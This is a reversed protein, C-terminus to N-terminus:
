RHWRLLFSSPFVSLLHIPFTESLSQMTYTPFKWVNGQYYKGNLHAAHCKNMWWGSGDQEACNGEYKDNDSDHTSFQIGNHSTFFKDSPDLGFDFGDFADGAEGGAFFAYFLRYKDDENGLKFHAYDAYSHPPSPSSFFIVILKKHGEIEQGNLQAVHHLYKM